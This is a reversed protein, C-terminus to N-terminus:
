STDPSSPVARRPLLQVPPDGKCRWLGCDMVNWSCHRSSAGQKQEHHYLSVVYKMNSPVLSNDVSALNTLVSSPVAIVYRSAKGPALCTLALACRGIPVHSESLSCGSRLTVPFPKKRPCTKAERNFLGAARPWSAGLDISYALHASSCASICSLARVVRWFAGPYSGAYRGIYLRQRRLSPLGNSKSM